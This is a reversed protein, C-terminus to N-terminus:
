DGGLARHLARARATVLPDDVVLSAIVAGARVGTDRVRAANELSIGGIAVVPMTARPVVARLLELGVTPAADSKSRTGFVPGFALYDPTAALVESVEAHNHTSAGVQLSAFIRRLDPVPLDTMGVHVGDAGALTAVDARDNVFFPTHAERCRAALAVALHLMERSGASKARLQLAAIPGAALVRDAFALPERSAAALADLDIIAYLGPKM